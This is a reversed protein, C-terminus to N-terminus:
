EVQGLHASEKMSGRVCWVFSPMYKELTASRGSSFDVFSAYAGNERRETASWYISPEVNAFPHDAPLKVDISSPEVLTRLEQLTPVRWDTGGAAHSSSCRQQAKEWDSMELAPSQEWELGTKKDRVAERNHEGVVMFRAGRHQPANELAPQDAFTPVSILMGGVALGISLFRHVHTPRSDKSFHM